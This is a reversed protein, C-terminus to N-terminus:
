QTINLIKHSGKNIKVFNEKLLPKSHALTHIHTHQQEQISVIM